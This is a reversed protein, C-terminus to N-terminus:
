PVNGIEYRGSRDVEQCYNPTIDISVKVNCTKMNCIMSDVHMCGVSKYVMCHKVPDNTRRRWARIIKIINM